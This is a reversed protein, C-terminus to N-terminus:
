RCKTSRTAECVQRIGDYYSDVVKTFGWSKDEIIRCDTATACLGAAVFGPVNAKELVTTRIIEVLDKPLDIRVAMPSGAIVESKWVTKVVFCVNKGKFDKISKIDSRSANTIGYSYYGPKGTASPIAAGIPEIKAGRAKALVYSFPGYFAMDVRGAVQAEIVGAYDTAAYFEVPLGTAQSILKVFNQYRLTMSAANESPVAGIILKTPWGVRTAQWTYKKTATSYTCKFSGSTKNLSTKACTDGAKVSPAALTAIPFSVSLALAAATILRVSHRRVMSGESKFINM